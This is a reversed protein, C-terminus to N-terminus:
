NGAEPVSEAIPQGSLMPPLATYGARRDQWRRLLAIPIILLMVASGIVMVKSGWQAGGVILLVANFAILFVALASLALARPSRRDATRAQLALFAIPMIVFVVLYGFNAAAVVDVVNTGFFLLLALIVASDLALSGIPVRRGNVASFARPIYGDRSMQFVTRSSGVIFAQAGLILASTLLLGIVTRGAGGWIAEAFPLFAVMPDSGLGEVGVVGIMLFPMLGFGVLGVAAAVFMARPVEEAGARMEAVITSAMEAGYASWAAVFAWKAILLWADGGSADGVSIPSLRGLDILSPQLLVGGISILLPVVAVCALCAAVRMSPELGLGNIVYLVAGIAVALGLVNVGSLVTAELYTAALILNVAIGPTWAFWYGWSSLAGFLPNRRGLVAHAYVPTGGARDPYRRALDSLLRCQLAGVLAIGLWVLPTATGIEASMPGVSVIVLLATGLALVVASRWTVSRRLGREGDV